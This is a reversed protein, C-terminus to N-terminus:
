VGSIVQKFAYNGVLIIILVSFAWAWWIVGGDGTKNFYFVEYYVTWKVM